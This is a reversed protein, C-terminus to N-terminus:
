TAEVLPEGITAILGCRLEASLRESEVRRGPNTGPDLWTPNITSFTLAPAPKRRTSRNGRGFEGDECDGPAPVIPWFQEVHRTSGTHVVGGVIRILLTVNWSVTMCMKYPQKEHVLDMQWISNVKQTLPIYHNWPLFHEHYGQLVCLNSLVAGTTNDLPPLQLNFCQM